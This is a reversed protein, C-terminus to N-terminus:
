KVVKVASTTGDTYTTVMITLGQAQQMEQGAMNFYRVNVVTKGALIEEVDVLKSVTFGDWIHDSELKGNAIAYAEIMYTGEDDFNLEGTYLVWDGYVFDGDIMVGVRYYIDSPETETLTVTYANYYLNGDNYVYNLKYSSPADTKETPNVPPEPDEDEGIIYVTIENVRVQGNTAYFCAAIAHNYYMGEMSEPIETDVWTGVYGDYTYEGRNDFGNVFGGPGYQNDDEGVCNVEIMSIGVTNDTTEPEDILQVLMEENKYIRIHDKKAMGNTVSVRIGEKEISYANASTMETFDSPVITVVRDAMANGAMMLTAFLFLLKKM